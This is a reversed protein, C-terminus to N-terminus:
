EGNREVWQILEELEEREMSARRHLRDNKVLEDRSRLMLIKLMDKKITPRHRLLNSSLSKTYELYAEVRGSLEVFGRLRDIRDREARASDLWSTRWQHVFQDEIDPPFRLNSVSANLVKLGRRQLLKYELSPITNEKDLTDAPTGSENLITVNAETMRAKIMRNITQLATELEPENAEPREEKPKIAPTVHKVPKKEFRECRDGIRMLFANLEHLMGALSKELGSSPTIPEMLAQTDAPEPAPPPPPPDPVPQSATFLEVLTFKSLYERWLDAAILAPLQNWAVRHRPTESPAQPNIGEGTVAKRVSEADFGFHSGEEEDKAPVSDIKFIVSINPVIEIGDRTWASVELRRKQIQKYEDDSQNEKKPAFPKEEERPGIKDAQVHLDVTSAVFEGRQTFHVGPGITQRFSTATRTVAASASDLWLVGSGKKMEEGEKKIQKGDRVFIAPGHAGSLYALLRDFIKQREAFTRVPLVFQAFFALWVLLGIFFILGDLFIIGSNPLLGGMRRIQWFYFGGGLLLWLFVFFWPKRYFPTEDM